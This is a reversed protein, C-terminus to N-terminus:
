EEPRCPGGSPHPTLLCPHDSRAPTGPSSRKLPRALVMSSRGAESPSAADQSGRVRTRTMLAGFSLYPRMFEGGAAWGVM